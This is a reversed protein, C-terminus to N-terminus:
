SVSCFFFKVSSVSQNLAAPMTANNKIQPKRPVPVTQNVKLPLKVTKRMEHAVGSAAPM